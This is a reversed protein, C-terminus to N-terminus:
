ENHLRRLSEYLQDRQLEKYRRLSSMETIKHMPDAIQEETLFGEPDHIPKQVVINAIIGRSV